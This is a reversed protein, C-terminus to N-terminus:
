REDGVLEGAMTVSRVHHPDPPQAALLPDPRDVGLFAAQVALGAWWDVVIVDSADEGSRRRVQDPQGVDGFV